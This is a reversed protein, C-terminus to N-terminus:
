FLKELTDKDGIYWDGRKFIWYMPDKNEEWKGSLSSRTKGTVKAEKLKETFKVAEVGIGGKKIQFLQLAGSILRLHGELIKKDVSKRTTPDLYKFAEDIDNKILAEYFDVYRKQLDKKATRENFSVADEGPPIPVGANMEGDQKVTIPDKGQLKNIENQIAIAEELKGSRTTARKLQELRKVTYLSTKKVSDDYSKKAKSVKDEHDKIISDITEGFATVAACCVIFSLIVTKLPNM